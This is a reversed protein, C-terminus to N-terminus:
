YVGGSNTQAATKVGTEDNLATVIANPIAAGSTDLVTGTLDGSNAQAFATGTFTLGICFVCLLWLSKNKMNKGRGSVFNCNLWRNLFKALQVGNLNPIDFSEPSSIEEM